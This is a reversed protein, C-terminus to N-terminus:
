AKAPSSTATIGLLRHPCGGDSLEGPRAQQLCCLIFWEQPFTLGLLFVAKEALIRSRVSRDVRECGFTPTTCDQVHSLGIFTQLLMSFSNFYRDDCLNPAEKM